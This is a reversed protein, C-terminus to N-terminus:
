LIRAGAKDRINRARIRGIIHQLITTASVKDIIIREAHKRLENSEIVSCWSVADSVVELPRIHCFLYILNLKKLSKSAADKGFISGKSTNMGSHHSDIIEHVLTLFYSSIM